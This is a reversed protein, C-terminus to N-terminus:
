SLTLVSQVIRPPGFLFLEKNPMSQYVSTLSLMSLLVTMISLLVTMVSSVFVNMEVLLIIIAALLIVM